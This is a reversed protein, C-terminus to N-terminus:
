SNPPWGAANVHEKTAITGADISAIVADEVAYAATVHTRAALVVALMQENSVSAYGDVFKWPSPDARLGAGIAVFEAILNARSERDTHVRQGEWVCGSVEVGYRVAAAHAKLDAKTVVPTPELEPEVWVAGVRTRDEDTSLRLWGRPFQEGDVEFAMDASILRGDALQYPM